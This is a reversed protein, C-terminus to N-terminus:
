IIIVFSFFRPWRGTKGEWLYKQGAEIRPVFRNPIRHIHQQMGLVELAIKTSEASLSLKGEYLMRYYRALSDVSGESYRFTLSVSLFRISFVFLDYRFDAFKDSYEAKSEDADIMPILGDGVFHIDL